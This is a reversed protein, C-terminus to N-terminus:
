STGGSEGWLVVSDRGRAKAQYLATDAQQLLGEPLSAGDPYIAVGMSLTLPRTLTGTSKVKAAAKSKTIASWELFRSLSPLLVM